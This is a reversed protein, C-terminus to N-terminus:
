QQAATDGCFTALIADPLPEDWDAPVRVQGVLLGLRRPESAPLLPALRAVPKGARAILVEEGAEVRALLQSLRSKAEHVNVQIM